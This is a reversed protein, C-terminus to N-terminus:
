GRRLIEVPELGSLQKAPLLAALGALLASIVSLQLLSSASVTLVMLENFEPIVVTLLLTIGLATIFGTTVTLLAQVVVVQLLRSNRVGMAKLVGYEKRRAVTAVYITLVVVALGTLYGATNIISIYDASMDKVLERENTAFEDKTQVTVGGLSQAIRDRVVSASEGPSVKVLVYSAVDGGGRMAAFDEFRVFSVASVFSATGSSMGAVTMQQGIATVRDGLGVGLLNAIAQDIIIEARGPESVGENVGWPSGMTAGSPVGFVYVINERADAQLIGSTYLIPVADAVGAVTKVRDVTEIPIASESMHMTRVGEQSVWIDAGANDVYVTLRGESGKFIAGFFLVLTLALGVGGASILLRTKNQMLNAVALRVM